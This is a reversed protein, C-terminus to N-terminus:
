KEKFFNYKNLKINELLLYWNEKNVEYFNMLKIKYKVKKKLFLVKLYYCIKM